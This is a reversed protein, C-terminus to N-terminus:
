SSCVCSGSIVGGSDLTDEASTVPSSVTLNLNQDPTKDKRTSDNRHLTMATATMALQHIGVFKGSDHWSTKFSRM